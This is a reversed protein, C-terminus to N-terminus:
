LLRWLRRWLQFLVTMCERPTSRPDILHATAGTQLVGLLVWPYQVNNEGVIIAAEGARLGRATLGAALAAARELIADFTVKEGTM